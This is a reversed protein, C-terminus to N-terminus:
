EVLGAMAALSLAFGCFAYFALIVDIVKMEMDREEHM